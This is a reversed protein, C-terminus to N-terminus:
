SSVYLFLLRRFHKSFMSTFRTQLVHEYSHVYSSNALFMFSSPGSQNANSHLRQNEESDSLGQFDVSVNRRLITPPPLNKILIKIYLTLFLLSESDTVFM